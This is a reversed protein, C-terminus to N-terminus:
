NNKYVNLYKVKPNLPNQGEFNHRLIENEIQFRELKEGLELNKMKEEEQANTLKRFICYPSSPIKSEKCKCRKVTSERVKTLEQQFMKIKEQM